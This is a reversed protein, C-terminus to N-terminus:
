CLWNKVNSISFVDEFETLLSKVQSYENRTLHSFKNLDFLIDTVSNSNIMGIQKSDASDTFDVESFNQHSHAIKTGKGVSRNETSTNTVKIYVIHENNVGM